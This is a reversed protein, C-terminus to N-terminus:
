DAGQTRYAEALEAITWHMYLGGSDKRTIEGVAGCKPCESYIGTITEPYLRKTGGGCFPCTNFNQTSEVAEEVREKEKM